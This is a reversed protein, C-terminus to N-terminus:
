NTGNQLPKTKQIVVVPIYVATTVNLKSVVIFM